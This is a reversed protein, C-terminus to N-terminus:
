GFCGQCFWGGSMAAGHAYYMWLCSGGAVEVRWYDRVGTRWKPEDLWWEPSIREPGVALKRVLVQGRWRFTEPPFPNDPAGVLEPDFLITPRPPGGHPWVEVPDAWAAAMPMFAKEPIHSSAPHMWRMEELGIRAGIRGILDELGIGGRTARQHSQAHGSHQVAQVAESLLVELRILDVGFGVDIDSMKMALLAKIRSPDRSPRALGVDVRQSTEDTRFVQLRLKRAGQGKVSLKECLPPLLRDLAALIDSELGIPEPLTLRVAFHVEPQAGSVPEAEVGLAQDLRRVIDRGFRRSLTARPVGLVDEIRRLGLKALGGVDDPKLRLAALPLKSIAQRTMNKPAIRAQRVDPTNFKPAGGGREWHRRKAARSRTAHAEQDISDGSRLLGVQQGSFRSLAWAAGLTDALGACVTLGFDACDAEIGAVMAAEGEFLHACGTIDLILGAAGDIAIWPSFKSAWRRLQGLFREENTLNVLKTVLQPCVALADRQSQGQRVGEIEAQENLSYVLQMNGTDQLIAVPVDGAEGTRRLMHEVALRPFWLCLIRRHSTM